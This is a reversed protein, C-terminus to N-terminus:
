TVNILLYTGPGKYMYNVVVADRRHHLGMGSTEYWTFLASNAGKGREALVRGAGFVADLVAVLAHLCPNHCTAAKRVGNPCTTFHRDGPLLRLGPAAVLCHGCTLPGSAPQLLLDLAVATPFEDATPFSFLDPHNSGEGATPVRRLFSSSGREVSGDFLRAIGTATASDYLSLFAQSAVM